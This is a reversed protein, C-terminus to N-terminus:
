HPREGRVRSQHWWTGILAALGGALLLLGVLGWGFGWDLRDNQFGRAASVLAVLAMLIWLVGVGGGIVYAIVPPLEDDRRVM